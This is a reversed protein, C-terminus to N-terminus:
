ESDVMKDLARRGLDAGAARCEAIVDPTPVFQANIPERVVNMKMKVLYEEVAKTGGSSWGYSGFAFSDKGAPKLGTLYTLIAAMQPMLTMNLTPSGFAVASADLIDTAMVTMNNARVNFMRVDAGSDIVGDVIAEAMLETSKWMTDYIVLVKPQPKLQVWEQYAKIITAIHSRWIIGHSPAIIEIDHDKTRDLARQIPKSYLMVINAFYTKAEAMIVELPEQDDFRGATAYHQGFADMSFLIKDEPIFTFMSEPWHVLPTDMFSLTKNGLSLTEGDSVVQFKWMSTDFHQSLAKKCKENCLLVANVCERMVAPLGGSHDPEAHNCVVYDVKDLDVLLKINDLLEGAYPAKVADILAVKEDRVLYANYSSGRDTQYGHFDRISWDVHGVWDIGDCVEVNM